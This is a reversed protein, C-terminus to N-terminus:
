DVLGLDIALRTLESRRRLGTKEGVRDLHSRVTSASIFLQESIQRDTRGEAVLRLIQGERDTLHHAPAPSNDRDDVVTANPDARTTYVVTLDGFRIRDGDRLSRRRVRHGNVATGNSSELDVLQWQSGEMRLEAHCRSVRPDDLVIDNGADRGVTVVSGTLDHREGDPRQLQAM